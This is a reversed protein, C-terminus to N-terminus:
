ELYGLARLRARDSEGIAALGREDHRAAEVRTASATTDFRAMMAKAEDQRAAALNRQEGPDAAVDFLQILDVTGTGGDPRQERWVLKRDATRIGGWYVGAPFMHGQYSLSVLELLVARDPTAAALLSRGDRHGEAALGAVELVTPLVDVLSAVRTDRRAPGAGPYKVILPVDVSEAYLNNKHGRKGHEFFEEGHDATVIVLTDDWLGAERLLVFLRGLLDDTARIEGEYQSWVYMLRAPSLRDVDDRTEWHSLDFPECAPTVFRRDYPPSPLYDYHPDWLYLFLFFPRSPDRGARVFRAVSQEVYPNTRDGHSKALKASAARQDWVDFGQHLNYPGRLYPGTVVGHTQYGNAALVEALTVYSDALRDLPRTTQHGTPYLSTFLSAHSTLTWSSTAHANEYVSAESALADLAPTLPEDPRTRSRGGYAGVHDTRLSEITVLVVNPRREGGACGVILLVVVGWSRM